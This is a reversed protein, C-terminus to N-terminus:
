EEKICTSRIVPKYNGEPCFSTDRKYPGLKWGDGLDLCLLKADLVAAYVASRINDSCAYYGTMKISEIVPPERKLSIATVCVALSGILLVNRIM